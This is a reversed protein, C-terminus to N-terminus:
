GAPCAGLVSGDLLVAARRWATMEQGKADGRHTWTQMTFAIDLESVLQSAQRRLANSARRGALADVAHLSSVHRVCLQVGALPDREADRLAARRRDIENAAAKQRGHCVPCDPDALARRARSSLWWGPSIGLRQPQGALVQALRDAHRAAQWALMGTGGGGVDRLHCACMADAPVTGPPSDCSLRADALCAREADAAAWCVSCTWPGGVPLRLPLGARFAARSGADPDPQGAILDLDPRPESLRKIMFRVLWRADRKRNLRAARRLHPLCVGGHLKYQRTDGVEDLLIGLVRDEAATEQDCAPCAAPVASPDEIAAAVVHKYVATLRNAAGPQTLLRRTHRGCMGRSACLRRLMQSDGHGELAFWTLYAESSEAAYRCAPCGPVTLLGTASGLLLVSPSRPVPAASPLQVEAVHTTIMASAM